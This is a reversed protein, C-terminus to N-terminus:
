AEHKRVFLGRTVPWTVGMFWRGSLQVDIDAFEVLQGTGSGFAADDQVHMHIHPADSNGSNGCRGLLEGARLQQGIKVAVTDERLHGIFAYLSEALEIVVHNGLPHTRDHQGLLNDPLDREAAVVRGNAPSLVEENWAFFNECRLPVPPESLQRGSPGGVKIFDVGFWQAQVSMHHNVNPTDGGQAVFWTGAFPLVLSTCPVLPAM